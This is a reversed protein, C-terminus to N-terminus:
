YPLHLYPRKIGEGKRPLARKGKGLPSWGGTTKNPLDESIVKSVIKRIGSMGFAVIRSQVKGITTTSIHLADKIDLYGWDKNLLIYIGLRKPLNIKEVSSFFDDFFDKAEERTRISAIADYFVNLIRKEIDKRFFPKGIQAM